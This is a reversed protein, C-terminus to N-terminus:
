EMSSLGAKIHEIENETQEIMRRVLEEADLNEPPGGMGMGPGGMGPGGPGGMGDQGMGPGGHGMGQGDHGMGPGGPGMDHDPGDAHEFFWLVMGITDKEDDSASVLYRKTVELTRRINRLMELEAEMHARHARTSEHETEMTRKFFPQLADPLKGIVEEPNPMDPGPGMQHQGQGQGPNQFGQGPQGQGRGRGQGRPPQGQQQGQGQGPNQFGQGPPQGQGQGPQGQGQGRGQGRPPQGQQQGQGQGPNQFGQGPPQGQGQGPQGQGQGRGQGRPPQGQQQGQGQGPNQFGQGPPQGQGRGQGQGQGQGQGPNQFGQGPPQGQGQGPAQEQGQQDPGGPKQAEAPADANILKVGAKLEVTEMKGGAGYSAKILEIMAGQDLNDSLQILIQGLPGSDAPSTRGVMGVSFKSGDDTKQSGLSFGGTLLGGVNFAKFVVKDHDYRLFVEVGNIGMADNLAVLEITVMEGPKVQQERVGQDGPSTDLDLVLEAGASGAFTFAFVSAFLIQLLPRRFM